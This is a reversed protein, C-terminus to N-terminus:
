AAKMLAGEPVVGHELYHWLEIMLRRSVAVIGVKRMRTGGGAFREEFWRTQKSSPQHLMWLWSIQNAMARLRRPGAKSIGQDRSSDGSDFPVGCLGWFGGLEKRNRFNRWSFVEVSFLWSSEIGIGRLQMLRRVLEMERSKGEAVIKRRRRELDLIQQHVLQWRIFERGLEAKLHPPLPNGRWDTLTELRQLFNRNVVVERINFMVLLSGIRNTHMTQEKRMRDLERNIRRLDEIHEPPANVVSWIRRDASHYRVLMQLLKRADIKDTKAKRKKRSVEISASDVVVNTISVGILYRHLWFGDRGAEYCSFIRVNVPLKFFTRAWDIAEQFQALDGADINKFKIRESNGDGFALKWKSNALEFAIYLSERNINNNRHLTSQNANM